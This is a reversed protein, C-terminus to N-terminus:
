NQNAMFFSRAARLRSLDVQYSKQHLAKFHCESLNQLYRMLFRFSHSAPFPLENTWNSNESPDLSNQALIAPLGKTILAEAYRHNYNNFAGPPVLPFKTTLLNKLYTTDGDFNLGGFGIKSPIEIGFKQAAVRLCTARRHHISQGLYSFVKDKRIFSALEEQIEDSYLSCNSNLLERMQPSLCSLQDVFSNCYGQPLEIFPYNIKIKSLKTRTFQSNRFDRFVSGSYETKKLGGDLINGLLSKIVNSYPTPKPPNYLLAAKISKFHNLHQFKDPEYTENGILIFTISNVPATTLYRNWCSPNDSVIVNRESVYECDKFNYLLRIGFERLLYQEETVRKLNCIADFPPKLM